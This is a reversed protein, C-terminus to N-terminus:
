VDGTRGRWIEFLILAVIIASPIALATQAATM